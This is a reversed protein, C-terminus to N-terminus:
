GQLAPNQPPAPPPGMMFGGPPPGKGKGGSGKGGKPGGWGVFPETKCGNEGCTAAARIGRSYTTDLGVNIWGYIGDEVKDGLLVYELIPDNGNAMDTRMVGDWANPM